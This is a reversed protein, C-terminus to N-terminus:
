FLTNNLFEEAKIVMQADKKHKIKKIASEYPLWILELHEQSIKGDNDDLVQGLFWIVEKYIKKNDRTFFYNTKKQFNTNIKIKELGTEEKTERLATQQENEGIEITGKCLGWYDEYNAYKLILYERNEKQRYLVIGCSKEM